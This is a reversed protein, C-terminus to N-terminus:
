DLQWFSIHFLLIFNLIEKLYACDGIILKKSPPLYDIIQAIHPM